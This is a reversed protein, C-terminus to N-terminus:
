CTLKGLCRIKDLPFSLLSFSLMRCIAQDPQFARNGRYAKLTSSPACVTSDQQAKPPSFLCCNPIMRWGQELLFQGLEKTNESFTGPTSPNAVMVASGEERSSFFGHCSGERRWHILPFSSSHSPFIQVSPGSFSPKAGM